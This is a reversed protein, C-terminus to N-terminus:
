KNFLCKVRVILWNDLCTFFIPVSLGAVVMYPLPPATLRMRHQLWYAIADLIQNLCALVLTLARLWQPHWAARTTKTCVLHAPWAVSKIDWERAGHRRPHRGPPNPQIPDAGQPFALGASWGGGRPHGRNWAKEREGRIHVAVNRGLVLLLHWGRTSCWGRPLWTGRPLLVKSTSWSSLAKFPKAEWGLTEDGAEQGQNVKIERSHLSRFSTKPEGLTQWIPTGTSRKKHILYPHM